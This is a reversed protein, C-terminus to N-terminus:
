LLGNALQNALVAASAPFDIEVRRRTPELPEIRIQWADVPLLARVRDAWEVLCVGGAGWYDAVGLDEFEQPSELRFVDFHYVPIRGEYEHILVFTPSAIAGPDVGLSEAVARVLRTKGAGLPGILGIVCGPDCVDALAQGLRETEQESDLEILLGADTRAVNM